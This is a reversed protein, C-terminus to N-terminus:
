RRGGSFMPSEGPLLTSRIDSDGLGSQQQTYGASFSLSVNSSPKFEIGAHVGTAATAAPSGFGTVTGFVDPNYKLTDVGGFLTVPLNGAGKFHYGFESSDLSLSGFNGGRAGGFGSWAFGSSIASVPVSYSRVAFGSPQEGADANANFSPFDGYAPATAADAWGGFAGFPIWYRLPAVQAHVVAAPAITAGICSLAFVIRLNRALTSM